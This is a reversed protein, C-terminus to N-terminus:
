CNVIESEAPVWASGGSGRFALPLGQANAWDTSDTVQLHVHPQTSNGSNGCKGVPDGPELLDGPRVQVSQCRLHALLVFPGGPRIAIVVHNGAIAAPGGRLRERQSLAYPLLALQSRRAEHDPEGDHVAAVSGAVPALIPQGFGRFLGPEEVSFLSRWSRPAPKGAVDVAIFDIAYTVGFAHTGHSPM